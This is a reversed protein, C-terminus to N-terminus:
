SFFHWVHGVLHANSQLGNAELSDLERKIGHGRALLSSYTVLIFIDTMYNSIYCM